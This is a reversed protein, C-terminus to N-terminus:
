HIYLFMSYTLPTRICKFPAFKWFCYKAQKRSFCCKIDVEYGRLVYKDPGKGPKGANACLVSYFYIIIVFNFLSLPSFALNHSELTFDKHYILVKKSLVTNIRKTALRPEAQCHTPKIEAQDEGTM